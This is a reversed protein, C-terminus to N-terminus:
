MFYLADFLEPRSPRDYPPPPPPPPDEDPPRNPKQGSEFCSSPLSEWTYFTEGAHEGNPCFWIPDEEGNDVLCRAFCSVADSNCKKCPDNGFLDRGGNMRMYVDASNM